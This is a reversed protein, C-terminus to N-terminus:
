MGTLAREGVSEQYADEVMPASLLVKSTELESLHGEWIRGRGLLKKQLYEGGSFVLEIGMQYKGVNNAGICHM